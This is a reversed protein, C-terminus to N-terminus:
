TRINPSSTPSFGVGSSILQVKVFDPEVQDARRALVARDKVGCIEVVVQARERLAQAGRAGADRLRNESAFKLGVFRQQQIFHAALGFNVVRDFGQRFMRGGHQDLFVALARERSLREALANQDHQGPGIDLMM